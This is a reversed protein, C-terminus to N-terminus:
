VIKDQEKKEELISDYKAREDSSLGKLIERFADKREKLRQIEFDITKQRENLAEEKEKLEQERKTLEVNTELKRRIEFEQYLENEKETMIDNIVRYVKSQPDRMQARIIAEHRRELKEKKMSMYKALERQMGSLSMGDECCETIIELALMKYLPDDPIFRATNDDHRDFAEYIFDVIDKKEKEALKKLEQFAYEPM